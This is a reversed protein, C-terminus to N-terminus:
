NTMRSEAEGGEGTKRSLPQPSPDRLPISYFRGGGKSVVRFTESGEIAHEEAAIDREVGESPHASDVRGM